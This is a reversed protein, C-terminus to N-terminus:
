VGCRQRCIAIPKSRKSKAGYWQMVAVRSPKASGQGVSLLAGMGLEELADDDLIEVELGSKELDKAINAFEVPGLTNAPENVLDRALCVGNAIAKRDEYAKQPKRPIAVTSSLASLSKPNTKSDKAKDSDKKANPGANTKYKEFSYCRLQIGLALDAAIDEAKKGGNEAVDAVVSASKTKRATVRGAIAGGLLVWDM